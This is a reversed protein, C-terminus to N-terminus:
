KIRTNQMYALCMLDPKPIFYFLLHFTKGHEKNSRQYIKNNRKFFSPSSHLGAKKHNKKYGM